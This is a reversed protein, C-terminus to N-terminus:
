PRALLDRRASSSKARLGFWRWASADMSRTRDPHPARRGAVSPDGTATGTL